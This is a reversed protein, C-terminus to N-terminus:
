NVRMMIDGFNIKMRDIYRLNPLTGVPSRLCKQGDEDTKAM